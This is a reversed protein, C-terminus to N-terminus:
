PGTPDQESRRRFSAGLAGGTFSGPYAGDPRLGRTSAVGILASLWGLGVLWGSVVDSLWHVGLYVRSAGVLLAVVCAGAVALWRVRSQAVTWAVYALAGYCAVSQASHGSPFAAGHARVLQDIAPPRARAVVRKLIEVLIATGASSAVLLLAAGRRNARLLLLLAVTTVLPAVVWGSGLQTVARAAGSLFGNRHGLVFRLVHEDLHVVTESERVSDALKVVFGCALLM